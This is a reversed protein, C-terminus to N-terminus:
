WLFQHGTLHILGFNTHAPVIVLPSYYCRFIKLLWISHSLASRKFFFEDDGGMQGAMLSGRTWKRNPKKHVKETNQEAISVLDSKMWVRSWIMPKRYLVCLIERVRCLLSFTISEKVRQLEGCCLGDVITWNNAKWILNFFRERERLIPPPPPVPRSTFM